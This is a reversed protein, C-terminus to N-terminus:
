GVRTPLPAQVKLRADVSAHLADLHSVIEAETVGERVQQAFYKTAKVRDALINEFASIEARLRCVDLGAAPVTLVTATSAPVDHPQSWAWILTDGTINLKPIIADGNGEQWGRMIRARNSTATTLGIYHINVCGSPATQIPGAGATTTGTHLLYFSPYLSAVADSVFLTKEASTWVTNAADGMRSNLDALLTALTAM